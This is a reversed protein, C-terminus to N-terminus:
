YIEVDEQSSNEEREAAEQDEVRMDNMFESLVGGM